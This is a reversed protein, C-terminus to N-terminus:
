ENKNFNFKNNIIISFIKFHEFLYEKNINKYFSKYSKKIIKYIHKYPIM